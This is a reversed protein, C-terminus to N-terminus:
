ECVAALAAADRIIVQGRDMALVGAQRWEALQKNVAERTGAVMAAMEGQSLRMPVLVGDPCPRGYDGALKLLLHAMRSALRQTAVRELGLSTDRLRDCLVRIVAMALTPQRGMFELCHDRPLSLLRCSSVALVDATRPGGDLMAVEGVPQVPEILRFTMERGGLSMVSVRLRGEMLILLAGAAEGQRMVQTGATVEIWRAASLFAVRPEPPVERLFPIDPLVSSWHDSM